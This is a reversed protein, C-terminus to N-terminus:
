KWPKIHWHLAVFWNQVTTKKKKIKEWRTTTTLIQECTLDTSSFDFWVFPFLNMWRAMLWCVHSEACGFAVCVSNNIRGNNKKSYLKWGYLISRSSQQDVTLESKTLSKACKRVAQPKSTEDWWIHRCRCWNLSNLETLWFDCTVRCCKSIWMQFVISWWINMRWTFFSLM